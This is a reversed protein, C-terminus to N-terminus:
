GANGGPTGGTVPVQKGAKLLANEQRLVSVKEREAQLQAVVSDRQAIANGLEAKLRTVEDSDSSGAGGGGALEEVYRRLSPVPLGDEGAQYGQTIRNHATAASASGWQGRFEMLKAVVKEETDLEAPPSDGVIAVSHAGVDRGATMDGLAHNAEVWLDDIRNADM